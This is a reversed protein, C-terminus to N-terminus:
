WKMLNMEDANITGKTRFIAVIIALGVAVEAAAVAMVMFVFIHGDLSNLHRAFAVLTLNVANLMLEISMFIVIANRRIMVGLIGVAFLIASLVLYSNLSVM